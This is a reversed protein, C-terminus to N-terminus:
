VTRASITITSAAPEHATGMDITGRSQDFGDLTGAVGIIAVRECPHDVAAAHTRRLRICVPTFRHHIKTETLRQSYIQRSLPTSEDWGGFVEGFVIAIIAPSGTEINGKGYTLSLQADSRQLHGIDHCDDGVSAIVESRVQDFRDAILFDDFGLERLLDMRAHVCFMVLWDNLPQTVRDVHGAARAIRDPDIPDLHAALRSGYLIWVTVIVGHKKCKSRPLVRLNRDSNKYFVRA